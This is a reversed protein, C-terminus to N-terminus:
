VTTHREDNVGDQVKINSFCSFYALSELSQLSFDLIIHVIHVINHSSPSIQAQAPFLIAQNM